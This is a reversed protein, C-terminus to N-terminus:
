LSSFVTFTSLWLSFSSYLFPVYFSFLLYLFPLFPVPIPAALIPSHTSTFTLSVLSLSVPYLFVSQIYLISFIALSFCFSFIALSCCFMYSFLMGPGRTQFITLLFFIWGCFFVLESKLYIQFFVPEIVDYKKFTLEGKKIKTALLM